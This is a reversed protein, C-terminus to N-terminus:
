RKEKGPKVYVVVATLGDKEETNEKKTIEWDAQCPPVLGDLIWRVTEEPWAPNLSSWVGELEPSLTNPFQPHSRFVALPCDTRDVKILEPSQAPIYDM